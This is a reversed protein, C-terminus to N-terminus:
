RELLLILSRGQVVYTFGPIAAEQGSVYINGWAQAASSTDSVQFWKNSPLNAPLNAKIPAVWGNYAVYLSRATDAFKTGDIRFALFHNNPNQFYSPDVESGDNKLWTLDKLGNGSSDTGTFFDSPRLCPHSLRFHFLVSVFNLLVSQTQLQGWDLWNAITDLNFANNNGFQTRFFESGGSVM